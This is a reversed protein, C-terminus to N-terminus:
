VFVCVCVYPCTFSNENFDPAVAVDRRSAVNRKRVHPRMTNKGNANIYWIYIGVARPPEYGYQLYLTYFYTVRPIM